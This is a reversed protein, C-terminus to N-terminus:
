VQVQLQAIQMTSCHLSGHQEVLAVCDVPVISYMPFATQLVSIARADEPVGYVPALVRQNVILFNAYTAPLPRGDVESVVVPSPLELARWNNRQAIATIQQHLSELQQSDPHDNNRGAYVVCDEAAFRAITDVHGDTDDGSLCINEVWEIRELGLQEQLLRVMQKENLARNRKSDIVCNKNALLVGAGNVDLAGGELVWEQRVPMQELYGALKASVEDDAESPYKGGWGNFAFDLYEDAEARGLSLPGYDRVWTDDYAIDTIIKISERQLGQTDFESWWADADMSPHLMVWVQMPDSASAALADLIRWYCRTVMSLTPDWDSGPYPWALLVARCPAWEPLLRSRAPETHPEAKASAAFNQM